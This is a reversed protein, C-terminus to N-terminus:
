NICLLNLRVPISQLANHHCPLNILVIVGPTNCVGEATQSPHLAVFYLSPIGLHSLLLRPLLHLVQDVNSCGSAVSASYLFSLHFVQFIHRFCKCFCTFFVSVVYTDFM